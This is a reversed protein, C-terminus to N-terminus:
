AGPWNGVIYDVWGDKWSPHFFARTSMGHIQLPFDSLKEYVLRFFPHLAANITWAAVVMQQGNLRARLESTRKPSFISYPKVPPPNPIVVGGDLGLSEKITNVLVESNAQRIDFLNLVRVHRLQKRVMLAEIKEQSKDPHTLVLNSRAHTAIRATAVNALEQAEDFPSSCGPNLMIVVAEPIRELLMGADEASRRVLNTDRVSVIELTSRCSHRVPGVTMEYFHAYYNFKAM